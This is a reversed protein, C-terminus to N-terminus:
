SRDKAMGGAGFSFVDDVVIPLEEVAFGLVFGVALVVVEGVVGFCCYLIEELIACLLVIVGTACSTAVFVTSLCCRLDKIPAVGYQGNLDVPDDDDEEDEEFTPAFVKMCDFTNWARSFCARVFFLAIRIWFCTRPINSLFRIFFIFADFLCMGFLTFDFFFDETLDRDKLAELTLVKEFIGIFCCLLGEAPEEAVKLVDVVEDVFDM